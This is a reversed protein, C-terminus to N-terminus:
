PAADCGTNKLDHHGSLKFPHVLLPAVSVPRGRPVAIM